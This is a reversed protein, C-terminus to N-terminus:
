ETMFIERGGLEIEVNGILPQAPPEEIALLEHLHERMPCLGRLEAVDTEMGKRRVPLLRQYAIPRRRRAEHRWWQEPLLAADKM